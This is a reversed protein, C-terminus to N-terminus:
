SIKSTEIEYDRSIPLEIVFTAGGDLNNFAFLRGKHNEIIKHSIALGLGSGNDKTTFFPEFIKDLHEPRIGSGNDKFEMRLLDNIQDHWISINIRGKEPLADIGNQVINIIVQKINEGDANIYPLQKQMDLYIVIAKSEAYSELLPVVEEVLNNLVVKDLKPEDQTLTLFRRLLANIREIESTIVEYYKNDELCYKKGMVQFLGKISCIPNKIEHALEAAIQGANALKESRILQQELRKEYTCDHIIALVGFLRKYKNRLLYTSISLYLLEGNRKFTSDIKKYERQSTLSELLIDSLLNNEYDSWNDNLTDISKGVLQNEPIGLITCFGPNVNKVKGKIDIMIIGDNISNFIPSNEVSRDRTIDPIINPMSNTKLLSYMSCSIFIILLLECLALIRFIKDNYTLDSNLHVFLIYSAVVFLATLLAITWIVKPSISSQLDKM